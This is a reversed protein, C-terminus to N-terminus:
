PSPSTLAAIGKRDGTAFYFTNGDCAIAQPSFGLPFDLVKESLDRKWIQFEKTVLRTALFLTTPQMVMGYVGGPIDHSFGTTLPSTTSFTFLEHNLIVNFGGTTRGLSLSGEFYSLSKGEQTEWGTPSFYEIQSIAVPNRVDLVRMQGEDSAAVYAFGDRVYIDNLLTDTEFGGIYAPALPNSVDIVNFENGDWKKTGIYIYGKSYFIATASPATSSAFPLPLKFKSRIVPAARNSIDIIQLQNTSGTNAVYLYPGAVEVRSLGPGTDLSSIIQFSNPNRADIIYIDPASATASDATLYVFGYLNGAAPL